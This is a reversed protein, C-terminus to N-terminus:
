AIGYEPWLNARIWYFSRTKILGLLSTQTERENGFVRQNRWLWLTWVTVFWVKDMNRQDIREAAYAYICWLCIILALSADVTTTLILAKEFRVKHM